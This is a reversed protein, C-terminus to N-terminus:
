PILLVLGAVALGEVTAPGWRFPLTTRVYPAYSGPRYYGLTYIVECPPDMAIQYPLIAFTGYFRAGSIFPQLLPSLTQGYRELPADEWRLPKHALNSAKWHFVTTAWGRPSDALLDEQGRAAFYEAACDPPLSTADEGEPEPPAIDITLTTISQLEEAMEDISPCRVKIKPPADGPRNPQIGRSALIAKVEDSVTLKSSKIRAEVDAEASPLQKYEVESSQVEEYLVESEEIVPSPMSALPQVSEAAQMQPGPTESLDAKVPQVEPDLHIVTKADLDVFEAEGETGAPQAAPLPAEPLEDFQPEDAALTTGLVLSLGLSLGWRM